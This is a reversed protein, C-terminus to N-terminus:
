PTPSCATGTPSTDGAATAAAATRNAIDTVAAEVLSVHPAPGFLVLTAM